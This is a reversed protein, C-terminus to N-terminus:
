EKCPCRDQQMNFLVTKSKILKIIRFSFLILQFDEKKREYEYYYLLNHCQLNKYRVKIEKAQIISKSEISQLKGSTKELQQENNTAQTNLRRYENDRREIEHLLNQVEQQIFRCFFFLLIKNKIEITKTNM